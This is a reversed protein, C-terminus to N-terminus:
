CGFLGQITLITGGNTVATTPSVSTIHPTAYSSTAISIDSAQGAVTVTWRLSTGVGEVM